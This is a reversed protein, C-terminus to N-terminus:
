IPRVACIGYVTDWFFQALKNKAGERDFVFRNWYFKSANDRFLGKVFRHRFHGNWRFYTSGSGQSIQFTPNLWWCLLEIYMQIILQIAVLMVQM